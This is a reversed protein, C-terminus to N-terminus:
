IPWQALTVHFIGISHLQHWYRKVPVWAFPVHFTWELAASAIKVQSARTGFACLLNWELIASALICQSARTGIACSLKRQHATLAQIEQSARTDITCLQNWELIGQSAKIAIITIVDTILVWTRFGCLVGSLSQLTCLALVDHHYCVLYPCIDTRHLCHVM